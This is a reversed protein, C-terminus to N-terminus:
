SVAWVHQLVAVSVGFTNVFMCICVYVCTYVHTYRYMCVHLYICIYMNICVYEYMCIRVCVVHVYASM